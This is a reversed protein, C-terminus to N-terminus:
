LLILLLLPLSFAWEMSLRKEELTWHSRRFTLWHILTMALLFVGFIKFFSPAFVLTLFNGGLLVASIAYIIKELRDAGFSRAASFFGAQQDEEVDLFSLIFLNYTALLLYLTFFVWFWLTRDLVDATMLPLFSIGLVYFFAISVEKMWGMGFKWIVMRAFLIILGLALVSKLVSGWGFWWFGGILGIFGLSLVAVILGKKAKQHFFRRSSFVGNEQADLIHDLNYISWVAMGLLIYAPLEISVHLLESFFLMGAMAGSVVDLSLWSIWLLVKNFFQMGYFYLSLSWFCPIKIPWFKRNKM